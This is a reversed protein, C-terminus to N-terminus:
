EGVKEIEAVLLVGFQKEVKNKAIEMLELFDSASGNKNNIFFNSHKNSVMIGGVSFGKLGTRELYFGASKDNIKQFVSGLSLGSPQTKNRKYAFENCLKIIDYELKKEFLFTASLVIIGKLNSSHYGFKIENKFIDYINGRDFVTIKLLRDSINYGFAGANNFIAGGITAPIGFLGEAGSLGNSKLVEALKSIQTGCSVNVIEKDINIEDIMKSTFIVPFNIDNVFLVNSANGLLKYKIKRKSLFLLVRKLEALNQPFIALKLNCRIKITSVNSADLNIKYVILNKDLFEILSM